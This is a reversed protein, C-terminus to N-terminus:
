NCSGLNRCRRVDCRHELHHDLVLLLLLLLCVLAQHLAKCLLLSAAILTKCEKQLLLLQHLLPTVLAEELDLLLRGLLLRPDEGCNM